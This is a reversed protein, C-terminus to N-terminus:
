PAVSGQAKVSGAYSDRFPQTQSLPPRLVVVGVNLRSVAHRGARFRFVARSRCSFGGGSVLLSHRLLRWSPRAALLARPRCSFVALPACEAGVPVPPRWCTPLTLRQRSSSRARAGALWRRGRPHGCRPRTRWCRQLALELSGSPYGELSAGECGGPAAAQGSPVFHWPRVAPAPAAARRCGALRLLGSAAAGPCRGGGEVAVGGVGLGETPGARPRQLLRVAAAAGRQCASVSCWAAAAAAAAATGAAAQQRQAAGCHAGMLLWLGSCGVCLCLAAATFLSPQLQRM